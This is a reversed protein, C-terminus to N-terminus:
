DWCILWYEQRSNNIGVIGGRWILGHYWGWQSLCRDVVPMMCLTHLWCKWSQIYIFLFINLVNFFPIMIDIMFLSIEMFYNMNKVLMYNYFRWPNFIRRSSLALLLFIVYKHILSYLCEILCWPSSYTIWGRPWEVSGCKKDCASCSKRAHM